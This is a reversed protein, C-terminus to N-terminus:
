HDRQLVMHIDQSDEYQSDEDESDKGHSDEYQCGQDRSDKYQSDMGHSDEYQSGQDRCDKYQSDKGHSDEYQSDQDRSDKYQSDMGPSDEYQSDQDRSDEYQSDMGHSDEYQSGQDRCDKYQSDKGHSDEYQSDQDRCDKYQSDMGPSDEYQSGQDRSDEDKKDTHQSDEDQNAKGTCLSSNITAQCTAVKGRIATTKVKVLRFRDKTTLKSSGIGINQHDRAVLADYGACKDKTHNVNFFHRFWVAFKFNEVRHGKILDNVEAPLSVNVKNFAKQLEKFNNVYEYEQNSFFKVRKLNILKPYLMHMLNCYAAGTCLQEINILNCQLTENFWDLIDGRSWQVLSNHTVTVNHARSTAM